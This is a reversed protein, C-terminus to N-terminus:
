DVTDGLHGCEKRKQNHGGLIAFVKVQRVHILQHCHAAGVDPPAALADVAERRLDVLRQDALGKGSIQGLLAQVM